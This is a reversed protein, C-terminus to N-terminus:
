CRPLSVSASIGANLTNQCVTRVGTTFVGMSSGPTLPSNFLLYTDVQDGRVDMAPLKTCIFLHEGRGLIGLTEIPVVQNNLDRVNADWTQAASLPTVVQYESTVSAGFPVWQPDEPLPERWLQYLGTEHQKGDPLCVTLPFKRVDYLGVRRLAEEASHPTEDNIGLRHWAPTSRNNYFRQSLIRHAM